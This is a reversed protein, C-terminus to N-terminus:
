SPYPFRHTFRLYSLPPSMVAHQGLNSVHIQSASVRSGQGSPYERERGRGGERGEEGETEGGEEGKRTRAGEGKRGRGRRETETRRGEEKGEVERRKPKMTIKGTKEKTREYEWEKRSYGKEQKSIRSDQILLIEIISVSTRENRAKELM